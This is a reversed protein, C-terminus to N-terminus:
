DKDGRVSILMGKKVGGNKRREGLGRGGGMEAMKTARRGEDGRGCAKNDKGRGKREQKSTVGKRLGKELKDM